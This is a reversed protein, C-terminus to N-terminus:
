VDDVGRASEEGSARWDALRVLTELLALRFPGHEALLGLVREVWSRRGDEMHGMEMLDLSLRIEPLNEGDFQFEPLRDGDWVGRAFRVEEGGKGKGPIKENPLARIDLRIKGHHAAILYATLDAVRGEECDRGAEDHQSIYALTSALEHRFFPRDIKPLAKLTRPAKTRPAKALLVGSYPSEEKGLYGQFTQHAKGTDHWLAAECVPRRFSDPLCLKRCFEKAQNQVHQLHKPLSVYCGEELHSEPDADMTHEEPDAGMAQEDANDSFSRKIIPETPQRTEATFGLATDYGGAQVDLMVRMGPSVPMDAELPTWPTRSQGGRPELFPKNPNIVYALHLQGSKKVVKQLYSRAQGISISCLEDRRPLGQLEALAHYEKRTPKNKALTKAPTSSSKRLKSKRLEQLQEKDGLERWFVQVDTDESDRIYASVDLIFGRLDPDTNFLELFDKRRIVRPRTFLEGPDTLGRPSASPKGDKQPLCALKKVAGELAEVSYPLCLDRSKKSELDVNVWFIQATDGDAIEGYRNCRGFRQILSAWPALETYLVASSLNVGAEIAQTSVIIRDNESGKRLQKEREARDKNRFRSHVLLLDTDQLDGQLDPDQSAAPLSKLKALKRYFSQARKVTNLVVLTTHGPRHTACVEKALGSVYHEENDRLVTDAKKVEKAADLCARLEEPESGEPQDDSWHWVVPSKIEEKFDITNLWDPNLTASCWMSRAAPLPFDGGREREFRRRWAELQASTPRAADMLQVEDFVWQADWHLLAFDIPWHFRSSGYGRMLARSILMDQTGIIVASDEPQRVWDLEKRDSGGLLTYIHPSSSASKTSKWIKELKEASRRTQEVLTRMPLCYVLRRPTSEPRFLRGWAWAFLVAATKGTGTPAILVDPWREALALREQYPFPGKGKGWPFHDSPRPGGRQIEKM